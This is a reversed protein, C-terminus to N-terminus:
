FGSLPLIIVCIFVAKGICTSNHHEHMQSDGYNQIYLIDILINLKRIKIESAHLVKQSNFFLSFLTM